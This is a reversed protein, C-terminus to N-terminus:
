QGARSTTAGRKSGWFIFTGRTTSTVLDPAGDKNLDVAVLHSGVGSRNHILEPVFEAGGPAKPNRVTRYWYLVAPGFPDPDSYAALHSYHRKGVVFDLIGDGDVDTSTAGHLETFTVNGANKTQFNDMIMHRVFTTKGDAGKKQEFWALGWGHGELSTVVDNLGDGNVDYVAMEAGGANGQSKGWRGFGVPHYPWPKGDLKTAPQEWWGWATLVDIRGDGNVDGTGIGHSSNAAWPGPESIPTIIWAATPKSPDPRAAVLTGGPIGMIIEPKGDGDLDRMSTEEIWVHPTVEYRSWRRQETGPNVFLVGPGVGNNGTACWQDPWGDGTFDYAFNVMCGRAYQTSPDYSEAPYIERAETYDPGLYYLPGAVVDLVGDRNVDAAAASWAYYFEELRQMRFRDSTEEKPVIRRNLNKYGLNKFRVEGTGGVYLALPGFSSPSSTVAGGASAVPGENLITRATVADVIIELENWEGAHLTGAPRSRPIDPLNVEPPAPPFNFTGNNGNARLMSDYMPDPSPPAAYLYTQPDHRRNGGRELKERSLERGEADLTVQYAALDGENLSILVGKMGGGNTKEARFLLATKCGAACRFDAVLGVDQYSQDLVLWGGAAQRPTGIIEGNQAKWDAQGLPHWGKLSSGSFTVDPVFTRPATYAPLCLCGVLAAAAMRKWIVNWQSMDFEWFRFEEFFSAASTYM